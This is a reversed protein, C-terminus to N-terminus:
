TSAKDHFAQLDAKLKEYSAQNFDRHHPTNEPLGIRAQLAQHADEPSSGSGGGGPGSTSGSLQNRMAEFFQHGYASDGLEVKVHEAAEKTLGSNADGAMLDLWGFNEDMRKEIAAQQEGASLGQAHEPILAQREAKVDLPEELMGADQAASFLDATLKQFTPVPLRLEKASESVKAFLPDNALEKIHPRLTEPMADDDFSSYATAEDPVSGDRERYGDLAKKLNDITGQDNDGLYHDELGDPRYIQVESGGDEASGGGAGGGEGASGAGGDESGGASGTSGGDGTGSDSGGGGSGDAEAFCPLNQFKFWDM